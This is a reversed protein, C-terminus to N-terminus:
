PSRGLLDLDFPALSFREEVGGERREGDIMLAIPADGLSRCVVERHLGLEEHPGERFNRRLLALGQRFYDGVTKAGYGEVEMAAAQPALRVGAYGEERGLAPDVLRVLPGVTSEKIATVAKGALGGVGPERLEERVESWTAGPGALVEALATGGAYRICTRRQPELAAHDAVIDAAEREGHLERALLNATGGPLVLLAGTWGELATAVSNVTGDGAYVAVLRVGAAEVDARGPLGEHTALTSTVPAGARAFGERLQAVADGSYSGSAPNVILWLKATM